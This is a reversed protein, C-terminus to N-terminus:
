VEAKYNRVIYMALRLATSDDRVAFRWGNTLNMYTTTSM